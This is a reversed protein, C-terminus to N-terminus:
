WSGEENVPLPLTSKSEREINIEEIYLTCAYPTGRSRTSDNRTCTEVKRQIDTILGFVHVKCSDNRPGILRSTILEIMEEIGQDVVHHVAPLMSNAKAPRRKMGCTAYDPRRNGTNDTIKWCSSFSNLHSEMRAMKVATNTM